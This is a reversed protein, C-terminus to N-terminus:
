FENSRRLGRNGGEYVVLVLFHLLEVAQGWELVLNLLLKLAQSDLRVGDM